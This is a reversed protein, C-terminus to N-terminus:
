EVVDVRGHQARLPPRGVEGRAATLRDRAGVSIAYRGAGPRLKPTRSPQGMWRPEVCTRPCLGAIVIAGELVNQEGAGFRLEGGGPHTRTQRRQAKTSRSSLHAFQLRPKSALTLL